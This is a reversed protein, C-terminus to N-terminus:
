PEIAPKQNAKRLLGNYFPLILFYPVLYYMIRFLIAALLAQELRSGLLAYIGAMSGEQVGFGGPVM